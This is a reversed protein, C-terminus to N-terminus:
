EFSQIDPPTILACIRFGIDPEFRNNPPQRMRSACRARNPKSFFSGGRVVRMGLDGSEERGDTQQYPYPKFLSRTWEWVTGTM